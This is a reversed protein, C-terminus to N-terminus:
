RTNRLVVVLRNGNGRFSAPLPARQRSVQRYDAVANGNGIVKGAFKAPLTDVVISCISVAGHRVLEDDRVCACM